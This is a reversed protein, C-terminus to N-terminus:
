VLTPDCGMGGLYCDAPPVGAGLRGVWVGNTCLRREAETGEWSINRNADLDPIEGGLLHFLYEPLIFLVSSKTPPIAIGTWCSRQMHNKNTKNKTADYPKHKNKSNKLQPYKSYLLMDTKPTRM